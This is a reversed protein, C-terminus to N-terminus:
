FCLWQSYGRSDTRQSLCPPLPGGTTTSFAGGGRSRRLGGNDQFGRSWMTVTLSQTHHATYICSEEM